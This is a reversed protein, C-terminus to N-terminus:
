WALPLQELAGAATRHLYTRVHSGSGMVFDITKEDINTERGDFGIQYRRQWAKGDRWLMTFHTDSAAHYYTGAPASELSPAYFSRAMGTKRYAAYEGPHCGACVRSDVSDTPTQAAACGAVVFVLEIWLFRLRCWSM